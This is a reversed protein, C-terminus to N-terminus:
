RSIATLWDFLCLFSVGSALSVRKTGVRQSASSVVLLSHLLSFVAM